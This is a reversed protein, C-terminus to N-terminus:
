EQWPCVVEDDPFVQKVLNRGGYWEDWDGDSSIEKRDRGSEVMYERGLLQSARILIATIVDDYPKRATKCCSGNRQANRCLVFSEHEDGGRADGNIAIIDETLVPEGDGGSGKISVGSAAILLAADTSLQPFISAWKEPDHKGLTFYYHTYGM